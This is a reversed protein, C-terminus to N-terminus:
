DLGRGLSDRLQRLRALQDASVDKELERMAEDLEAIQSARGDRLAQVMHQFALFFDVLEDGKRLGRPMRLDGEAVDGLHRRMKYIPGAVKHTVVIGAGGIAVVLLGLVGGLVWFLGHQFRRLSEAQGALYRSQGELERRQSELRQDQADADGNFADLLDPNNQYVPDKVINMRVVASVKRSEDVVERGLRVIREGQAVNQESQSLVESSTRYLVAGLSASLLVTIAVLYGTYKLQFHPDLLLNKWRRQHRGSPKQVVAEAM